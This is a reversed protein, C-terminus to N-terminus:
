PAPRRCARGRVNLWGRARAQPLYTASVAVRRGGDLLLEWRRGDRAAGEIADAAVWAGRHVQAGELAAVEELADGFRYHILASVGDRSHVRCYHDEAEIAILRAPDIRARQLLGSAQPAPAAWRPRYGLARTVMLITILIVAGIAMARGWTGFADPMEGGAGVARGAILVELPLPLSLIVGGIAAARFWDQRTRVTAWFWLQWKLASWGMLLMWFLARQGLPLATTGFGGTVTMLAAAAASAIWLMPFGPLKAIGRARKM